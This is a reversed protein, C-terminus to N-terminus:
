AAIIGSSGGSGDDKRDSPGLMTPHEDEGDVEMDEEEEEEEAEEKLLAKLEEECDKYHLDVQRKAYLRQRRLNVLPDEHKNMLKNEAIADVFDFLGYQVGKPTKRPGRFGTDRRLKKTPVPTLLEPPTRKRTSSRPIFVVEDDSDSLSSTDDDDVPAFGSDSDSLVRAPGPAPALAITMGAAGVQSIGAMTGAPPPTPPLVIMVGAAGAQPIGAMTTVTRPIMALTGAQPLSIMPPAFSGIPFRPLAPHVFGGTFMGAQSGVTGIMPPQGEGLLLPASPAVEVDVTFNQPDLNTMELNNLLTRAVNQSALTLANYVAPNGLLQHVPSGKTTMM